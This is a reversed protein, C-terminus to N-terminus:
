KPTRFHSPEGGQHPKALAQRIRRALDERSYPKSLLEVGPDLRGGHVIANRTYGSTFLVAINPLLERAKHALEPSRLPGPMVVDTFLLDIKIGSKVVALAEEADSAVLVQYGLEKLTEVVIARVQEDDEAVLVTETGGVLPHTDPPALVQESEKSRPLYLKVTTGHGIESYIKVHGGSQKIFGYVMSLGLGTGQGEPKTTYFPDFAQAMVEPTMGAGTDSVALLVYDGADVEAHLRAYADDLVANSLEVTLKGMGEMADRANIALNLVANEVQSVDVSTNWLSSAVVTQVRVAEGLARQLMDDMSQIFRGLNVVKPELTQRRGFALLHGALKAGRRVGAMASQIRREARANGAVERALLQLNGAIVQLLNNFDHAVGGTLKGITEMKQAQLLAKETRRLAEAGERLETVDRTIKAFGVFKGTEDHLADIVVHAVFRSGDKRVRWGEKEYRGEALATALPKSLLAPM